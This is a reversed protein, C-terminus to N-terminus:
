QRMRHKRSLGCFHQGGSRSATLTNLTGQETSMDNAVTARTVRCDKRFQPLGIRSNEGCCFEVIHRQTSRGRANGGRPLAAACVDPRKEAERHLTERVSPTMSRWDDPTIGMPRKTNAPRRILGPPVKEYPKTACQCSTTSSSSTTLHTWM